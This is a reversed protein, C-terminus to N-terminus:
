NSQLTNNFELVTSKFKTNDFLAVCKIFYLPKEFVKKTDINLFFKLVASKFSAM